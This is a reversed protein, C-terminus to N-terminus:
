QNGFEMEITQIVPALLQMYLGIAENIQASYYAQLLGYMPISKPPNLMRKLSQKEALSLAALMEKLEELNQQVQSLNVAVYQTATQIGQEPNDKYRDFENSLRYFIAITQNYKKLAARSEATLNTESPNDRSLTGETETNDEKCSYMTIVAVFLLLLLLRFFIMRCKFFRQANM